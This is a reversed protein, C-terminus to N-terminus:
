IVVNDKLSFKPIPNVITPAAKFKHPLIAFFMFSPGLDTFFIYMM